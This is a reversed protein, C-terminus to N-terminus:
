TARRALHTARRASTTLTYSATQAAALIGFLGGAAISTLISKM